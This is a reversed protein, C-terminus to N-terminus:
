RTTAPRRAPHTPPKFVIVAISQGPASCSAQVLAGLAHPGYLVYPLIEFGGFSRPMAPFLSDRPALRRAPELFKLPQLDTPRHEARKQVECFRDSKLRVSRLTCDTRMGGQFADNQHSRALPRSRGLSATGERLGVARCGRGALGASPRTMPLGQSHGTVPLGHSAQSSEM